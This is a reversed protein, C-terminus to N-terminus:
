TFHNKKVEFGTFFHVLMGKGEDWGMGGAGMGIGVQGLGPDLDPGGLTGPDMCLCPLNLWPVASCTRPPSLPNLRLRALASWCALSKCTMPLHFLEYIWTRLAWDGFARRLEEEAFRRVSLKPTMEPLFLFDEM